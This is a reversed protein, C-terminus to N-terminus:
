RQRLKRLGGKRLVTTTTGGLSCAASGQDTRWVNVGSTILAAVVKSARRVVPGSM